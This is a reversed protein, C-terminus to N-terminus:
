KIKVIHIQVGSRKGHAIMSFLYDRFKEIERDEKCKSYSSKKTYMSDSINKKKKPVKKTKVNQCNSNRPIHVRIDYHKLKKSRVNQATGLCDVLRKDYLTIAVQNAIDYIMIKYPVDMHINRPWIDFIIKEDNTDSM